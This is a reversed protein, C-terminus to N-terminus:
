THIEVMDGDHLVHERGVSQGDHVEAGWIRAYKLKAALDQHVRMALDDVSGGAPVTFPDEYVPPKGPAKTYVRIVDLAEYIAHRLAERSEARDFEVRVLPISRPAMEQLFEIRTDADPDDARTVVLRTKVRLKSFDQEDFGTSEALLTKRAHLQRIVAVTDEPADDSSGDMCLLVLDATRTYSNIYAEFHADTIPPTDILQILVDQWAMIAPFPERTTFPYPAVEPSANTLDALVRSKGSNPGGIVLVTGAGQRPVRYSLGKKAASKEALHEARSEKLRSKLDAQLKETGKHKPIVQLMLELCAVQEEVSQARRYEEEAKQYRHTLNAPM